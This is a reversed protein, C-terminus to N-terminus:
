WGLLEKKRNELESVREQLAKLEKNIETLEKKAKKERLHATGYKTEVYNEVEARLLRFWLNGHISSERFQLTGANIADIIEDRTIGYEKAATKDSLSANKQTWLNSTNNM